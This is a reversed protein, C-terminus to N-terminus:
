FTYFIVKINKKSDIWFRRFFIKTQQFNMFTWLHVHKKPRKESKKRINKHGRWGRVYNFTRNSIIRIAKKQAKFLSFAWNALFLAWNALCEFYLKRIKQLRFNKKLIGTRNKSRFGSRVPDGLFWGSGPGFRVPGSNRDTVLVNSYVYSCLYKIPNPICM